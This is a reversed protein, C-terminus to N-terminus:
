EDGFLPPEQIVTTEQKDTLGNIRAVLNPSKYRGTLTGSIQDSQWENRMHTVIGLYEDYDGKYNDIYQHVHHGKVRYVYAEFEQRLLPKKVKITQVGKGTAVEILDYGITGKFGEWLESLEKPTIYKSQGKATPM